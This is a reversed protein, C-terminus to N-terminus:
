HPSEERKAENWLADLTSLSQGDVSEGLAELRAEIYEFRRRFRELMKRLAEEPDIRHIRAINAVTFLVDGIESELADRDQSRIAEKLENIEEDMKALAGDIDPWDFGVSRVKESMRLAALLAPLSKPVGSLVGKGEQRKYGEWRDQVEESSVAPKDTGFVHPHRRILKETERECVKSIDFLGLEEAICAQLVVQLLLDGLEECHVTKNKGEIAEVVEYAEEIVYKKLTEFTQAKDWPCGDPARLRKIVDVLREFAEGISM